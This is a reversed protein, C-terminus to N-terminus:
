VSNPLSQHIFVIHRQRKQTHQYFTEARQVSSPLAHSIDELCSEWYMGPPLQASHVARPSTTPSSGHQSGSLHEQVNFAQLNCSVTMPALLCGFDCAPVGFNSGLLHLLQLHDIAENTCDVDRSTPKHRLLSGLRALWLRSPQWSCAHLFALGRRSSPRSGREADAM